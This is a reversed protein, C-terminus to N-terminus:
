PRKDSFNFWAEYFKISKKFNPMCKKRIFVQIHYILNKSKIKKELNDILLFVYMSPGLDNEIKDLLSLIICFATIVIIRYVM